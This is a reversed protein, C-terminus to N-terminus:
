HSVHWLVCGASVRMPDCLACCLQARTWDVCAFATVCRCRVFIYATACRLTVGFHVAKGTSLCQVAVPYIHVWQVQKLVLVLSFRCVGQGTTCHAPYRLWVCLRCEPRQQSSCAAQGLTHCPVVHLARACLARHPLWRLCCLRCGCYHLGSTHASRSCVKWAAGYTV